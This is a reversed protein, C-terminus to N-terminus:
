DNDMCSVTFLWPHWQWARKGAEPRVFYYKWDPRWYWYLGFLKHKSDEAGPSRLGANLQALDEEMNVERAVPYAYAPKRAPERTPKGPIEFIPMGQLTSMTTRRYVADGMLIEIADDHVRLTVGDAPGGSLYVMIQTATM